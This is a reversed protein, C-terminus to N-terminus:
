LTQKDIYYYIQIKYKKKEFNWLWLAYHIKKEKNKKTEDFNLYITTM